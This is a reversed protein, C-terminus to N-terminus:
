GSIKKMFQLLLPLHDFSNLHDRSREALRPYMVDDSVGHSFTTSIQMDLYTSIDIRDRKTPYFFIQSFHHSLSFYENVEASPNGKPLSEIARLDGM